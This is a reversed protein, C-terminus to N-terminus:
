AAKLFPDPAAQLPRLQGADELAANAAWIDDGTLDAHQWGLPSLHALLHDPVGETQRHKAVARELYRTNWLIIATVVLNLSPVRPQM